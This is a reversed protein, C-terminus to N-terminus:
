NAHAGSNKVAAGWRLVESRLFAGFEDPTGNGPTLGLSVFQQKTEPKALYKMVEANLKTVIEKPVGAPAILATWATAGFSPFGSEAITPVEPAAGFRVLSSVAIAKLKGARMFPLVAPGTDFMLPVRGTIVDTLAPSSGKYPVHVLDLEAAKKFMEMILHNTIGNGSSAYNIEGPHAKAYAVLEKVTSAPFDPSAVLFLAGSAVLAIPAFSKLSDYPLTSYLSPNVALAGSSSMILTYGDAPSRMGVDHALITGAGPRNEVIFPQGLKNQLEHALLRAITDAAQGPPFGVIIKVPRTPYDQAAAFGGLLLLCVGIFRAVITKM